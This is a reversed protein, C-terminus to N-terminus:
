RVVATVGKLRWSVARRRTESTSLGPKLFRCRKQLLSVIPINCDGIKFPLGSPLSVLYCTGEVWLRSQAISELESFTAFVQRPNHQLYNFITDGIQQRLVREKHHWVLWKHHEFFRKGTKGLKQIRM